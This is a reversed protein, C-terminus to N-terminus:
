KRFRERMRSLALQFSTPKWAEHLYKEMHQKRIEFDLGPFHVIFSNENVQGSEMTRGYLAYDYANFINQPIWEVRDQIGEYNKLILLRLAEQEAWPHKTIHRAKWIQKLLRKNLRTNKWLMVGTNVGNCDEALYLAKKERILSRIDFDPNRILSDADLWLCFRTKKNELEKRLLQIKYWAAPVETETITHFDYALRHLRCYKKISFKCIEALEAHTKSNDCATIIKIM